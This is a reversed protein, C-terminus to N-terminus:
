ATLAAKQYRGGKMRSVTYFSYVVLLCYIFFGLSILAFLFGLIVLALPSFLGIMIFIVFCALIWSLYPFIYKVDNDEFIGYLAMGSVAITILGLPFNIWNNGIEIEAEFMGPDRIEPVLNATEGLVSTWSDQTESLSKWFEPSPTRGAIKVTGSPLFMMLLGMIVSVWLIFVTGNELSFCGLFSNFIPISSSVKAM